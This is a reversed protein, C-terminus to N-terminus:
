HLCKKKRIYKFFFKLEWKYPFFYKINTKRRSAQKVWCTTSWNFRSQQLRHFKMKNIASHCEMTHAHIHPYIFPPCRPPNWIKAAMFPAAVFLNTYKDRQNTKNLSKSYIGLLPIEPNHALNVELTELFKWM